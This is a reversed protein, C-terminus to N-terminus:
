TKEAWETAHKRPRRPQRREVAGDGPVSWPGEPSDQYQNGPALLEPTEGPVAADAAAAEGAVLEGVPLLRRNRTKFGGASM